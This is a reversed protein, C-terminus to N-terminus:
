FPFFLELFVMAYVTTALGQVPVKLFGVAAKTTPTYVTLELSLLKKRDNLM